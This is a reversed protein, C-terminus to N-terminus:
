GEVGSKGTLCHLCTEIKDKDLQGEATEKGKSLAAFTFRSGLLPAIIRTIRGKDGMGVIIVDKDSDLLGLLRANDRKSNVKCAIKAIDGGSDFCLSIIKQLEEKKPTKEDDHFSVIVMCGKSRAMEIIEKKYGENSEIEIDVFSAGAEIATMLLQKRKQETFASPRCTAILGKQHSFVRKVDKLSLQMKDMRIEAFGCGDLAKLCAEVPSEAISVCIM